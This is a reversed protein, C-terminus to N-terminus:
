QAVTTNDTDELLTLKGQEMLKECAQQSAESQQPEVQFVESKFRNGMKFSDLVTLQSVFLPVFLLLEHVGM